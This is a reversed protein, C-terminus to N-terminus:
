LLFFGLVFIIKLSSASAPHFLPECIDALLIGVCLHHEFFLLQSFELLASAPHFLPECIDALLIGVCLHHWPWSSILLCLQWHRGLGHLISFVFNAFQAASEILPWIQSVGTLQQLLDRSSSRATTHTATSFTNINKHKADQHKHQRLEGRRLKYGAFSRVSRM